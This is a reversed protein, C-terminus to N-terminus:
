SVSSDRVLAGHPLVLAQPSWSEPCIMYNDPFEPRFLLLLLLCVKNKGEMCWEEGPVPMPCGPIRFYSRVVKPSSRPPLLTHSLLLPAQTNFGFLKGSTLGPPPPSSTLEQGKQRGALQHILDAWSARSEPGCSHPQCPLTEPNGAGLM